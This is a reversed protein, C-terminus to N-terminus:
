NLLVIAANLLTAFSVWLLYPWLLYAARPAIPRFLRICWVIAASLLVIDVLALVPERLAFFFISWSFNLALQIAYAALARRKVVASTGSSWVLGAACGMLVFLLTWVPGFIWNPPNFFPKELTVYWTRIADTTAFGASGGIVWTLVVMVAIKWFSGKHQM